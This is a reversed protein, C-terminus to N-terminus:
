WGAKMDAVGPWLSQRERDQISAADARGEPVGHRSAGDAHHGLEVARWRNARLADGYIENAITECAIDHSELIRPHADRRCRRRSTTRAAMSTVLDELLGLM